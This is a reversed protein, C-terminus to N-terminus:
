IIKSCRPDADASQARARRGQGAQQRRPPHVTGQGRVEADNGFRLELERRSQLDGDLQYRDTRFAYELFGTSCIGYETSGREATVVLVDDGAAAQGARDRGPRAPDVADAHDPRDGAGM